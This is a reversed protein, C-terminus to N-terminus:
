RRLQLVYIAALDTAMERTVNVVNYGLGAVVVQDEITPALAIDAAAITVKRDGARITDSLQRDRYEEIRGKITTDVTVPAMTGASPSYATATVRRITVDTGFKGVVTTAAKRMVADLNAM